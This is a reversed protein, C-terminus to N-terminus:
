FCFNKELIKKKVLNDKLAELFRKGLATDYVDLKVRKHDYEIIIKDKLISPM